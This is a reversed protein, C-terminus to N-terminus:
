HISKNILRFEVDGFNKLYTKWVQSCKEKMACKRCKDTLATRAENTTPGKVFGWYKKNIVCFPYHYLEVKFKNKLIEVSKEVHNKLEKYRPAIKEKNKYAYGIINIPFIVLRELNAFNKIIFRSINVLDKYNLRNIVIRLETNVKFKDLNKIGKITQEFSGKVQTIKDHLYANSGHIETIVKNLPSSAIKKAYSEYNLRRGNTILIIKSKPHIKNIFNLLDFLDERLTPEGGTLYIDSSTKIKNIEKKLKKFSPHDNFLNPKYCTVCFNNCKQTVNLLIAEKEEGIIKKM